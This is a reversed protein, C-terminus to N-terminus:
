RKRENNLGNTRESGGALPAPGLPPYDRLIGAGGPSVTRLLVLITRTLSPLAEPPLFDPQASLVERVQHGVPLIERSKIKLPRIDCIM